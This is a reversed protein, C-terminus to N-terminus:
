EINLDSALKDIAKLIEPSTYFSVSDFLSGAGGAGEKEAIESIVTNMFEWAAKLVESHKM